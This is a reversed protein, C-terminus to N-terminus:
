FPATLIPRRIGPNVNSAAIANISAGVAGCACSGSCTCGGAGCDCGLKRGRGAGVALGGSGGEL